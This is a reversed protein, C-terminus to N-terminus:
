GTSRHGRRGSPRTRPRFWPCSPPSARRRARGSSDRRPGCGTARGSCGWRWRSKARHAARRSRRCRAAALDPPEVEVGVAPRPALRSGNRSRRGSPTLGSPATVSASPCKQFACHPAERTASYSAAPRKRRATAIGPRWEDQGAKPPGSRVVSNQVVASCPRDGSVGRRRVRCRGSRRRRPGRGPGRRVSPSGTVAPGVGRRGALRGAALTIGHGAESGAGVAAGDVAQREGGAVQRDRDQGESSDQLVNAEGADVVAQGEAAGVKGGIEPRHHEVAGDDARDRVPKGAGADLDVAARQRQDGVLVTAGRKVASQEAGMGPDPGDGIAAGGVGGQGQRKGVAGLAIGAGTSRVARKM